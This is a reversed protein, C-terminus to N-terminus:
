RPRHRGTDNLYRKRQEKIKRIFGRNREHCIPCDFSYHEKDYAEFRVFPVRHKPCIVPNAARDAAFNRSPM